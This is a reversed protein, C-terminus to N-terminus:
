YGLCYVVFIFLFDKIASKREMDSSVERDHCVKENMRRIFIRMLEM